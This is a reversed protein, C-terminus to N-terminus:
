PRHVRGVGSKGAWPDRAPWDALVWVLVAEVADIWLTLAVSTAEALEDDNQAAALMQYVVVSAKTHAMCAASLLEHV